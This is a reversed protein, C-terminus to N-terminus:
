SSRALWWGTFAISFAVGFGVGLGSPVSASFDKTLMGIGTALVFAIVGAVLARLLIGRYVSMGRVYPHTLLFPRFHPTCVPNEPCYSIEFVM